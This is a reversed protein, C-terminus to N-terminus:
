VTSPKKFFFPLKHVQQQAFRLVAISLFAFLYRIRGLALHWGFTSQYLEWGAGFDGHRLCALSVPRVHRTLIRLREMQRDGAGPYKGNKEQQILYRIGQYCKHADSVASGSHLRYGFTFPASILTFGAVTGLRLWLDSDEANMKQDNFGGSQQLVQTQVAVACGYIDFSRDSAAYYDGFSQVNLPIAVAELEAADSFSCHAGAVFIPFNTAEIAQQYTALTWPFWLDDSDLFTTYVGQAQRIGLNRAAGPSKNEQQLLTIRDRYPHLIEVTRDTSGDDVVIVEYSNLTQAFVSELTAQIYQERNFTPIIISFLMM